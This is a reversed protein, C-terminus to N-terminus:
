TKVWRNELVVGDWTLPISYTDRDTLVEVAARVAQEAEARPFEFLIEDHVPLRMYPAFGAADLAIIGKKMIEASHGQVLYNLLAYERGPEGLLRRGTPTTVSPMGRRRMQKADRIIRQMLADLGPFTRDFTAAIPAMVQETVGATMAMTPVGSGYIKGYTTNKALTYRPDKKDVSVPDLGFIQGAMQKFFSPGGADAARFMALMGADGSFHTGMRAEIQDADISGLAMGEHPIFSGRVGIDEGTDIVSLTDRLLTQLAPQTVSMRSTRAECTWISPHILDSSDRWDLFHQFYSGIMKAARRSHLLTKCLSAAQPFEGAYVRLTDKTYSAKGGDTWFLVPIGLRGMAKEVQGNSGPSTIGHASKLWAAARGLWENMTAISRETYPVDVLLGADMMNACCRATALEISYPLAYPGTLEPLLRKCLHATVCTDLAAYQWYPAFDFPVTDWDWKQKSMADKLMKEGASCRSDILQDGQQKLGGPRLSNHLHGGLLMDDTVDWRAAIGAQRLFRWDYPSNFFGLRRDYRRIVEAAAGWWQPTFAWGTWMDGVQMLRLRHLFPNLGGNETDVCLPTERTQAAWNRFEIVDDISEVLRLKVNDLVGSPM